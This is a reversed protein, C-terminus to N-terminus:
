NPLSKSFVVRSRGAEKAHYLARDAQEILTPLTVVADTIEAIGICASVKAMGQATEISLSEIGSLLRHAIEESQRIASEPLIAIFEDGGYRGILDVNRLKHRFLDALAILMRDGVQHGFSDNVQKFYDLDIMLVSLPRKFRVAREVERSGLEFLSRRNRLGTLEDTDAKQQVESYLRANEIATATQSAFAVLREAHEETYFGRTESFLSLFGITRQRVRLPMGIYSRVWENIPLPQWGPYESIDPIALPKGTEKMWLM